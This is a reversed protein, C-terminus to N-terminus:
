KTLYDYLWSGKIKDLARQRLKLIDSNELRSWNRVAASFTHNDKNNRMELRSLERIEDAPMTIKYENRVIGANSDTFPKIDKRLRDANSRRVRHRTQMARTDLVDNGRSIAGTSVDNIRIHKPGYGRVNHYVVNDWDLVYDPAAVFAADHPTAGETIRRKYIPWSFNRDRIATTFKATSPSGGIGRSIAGPAFERQRSDAVSKGPKVYDLYYDTWGRAPIFDASYRNAENPAIFDVSYRKPGSSAGQKRAMREISYPKPFEPLRETIPQNRDIYDDIFRRQSKDYGSMGHRHGTYGVFNKFDGKGLGRM